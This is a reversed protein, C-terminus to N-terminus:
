TETIHSTNITEGRRDILQVVHYGFKTEIIPSIEKKLKYAIAEFEPVFQGRPVFGLEGGNKASGADQLIFFQVLHQLIKVKLLRTRIEELRTKIKIKEEDSVAIKFAIEGYEM